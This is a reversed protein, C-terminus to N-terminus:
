RDVLGRAVRFGRATSAAFQWIGVAYARSVAHPDYGSEVAGLYYMDEPVGRAKFTSRIMPEYRRGRQMWSVFRERAPGSFLKVYRDVRDQTVFARVEIDWSADETAPGGPPTSAHSESVGTQAGLASDGFLEVARMALRLAEQVSDSPPPLAPLAAHASDATSASPGAGTEPSGNAVAPTPAVRPARSGGCAAAVTVITLGFLYRTRTM